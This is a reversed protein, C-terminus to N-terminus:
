EEEPARVELKVNIGDQKLVEEINNITEATIDLKPHHDINISASLTPRKFLENPLDVGVKIAVEDWKLDPRGKTTRVSGGEKIILWFNVKM